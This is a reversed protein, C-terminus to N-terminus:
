ARWSQQTIARFATMSSVGFKKAIKHYSSRETERIRRMTKVQDFTLKANGNNAGGPATGHLVKDQANDSPTGWCLNEPRNFSRDGDLHRCVQGAQPAGHFAEAILRHLYQKEICGKDTVLQLGCYQGMKIPSMVFPARRSYSVVTGNRYFRYGPFRDIIQWDPYNANM